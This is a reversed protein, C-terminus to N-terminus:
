ATGEHQSSQVVGVAKATVRTCSLKCCGLGKQSPVPTVPMRWFATRLYALSKSGRTLVRGPRWVPESQIRWSCQNGAQRM